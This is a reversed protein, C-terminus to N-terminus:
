GIKEQVLPDKLIDRGAAYADRVMSIAQEIAADSNGHIYAVPEGPSVKDGIRKLGSLGVGPDIVDTLLRRGGGLIQIALGLTRVDISTIYQDSSGSTRLLVPRKIKAHPLKKTNELCKTDGGQAAIIKCFMEFASGDQLRKELAKMVDTEKREPFALRIMEDALMLSLDKTSKPGAGKLIQVVEEVELSHGAYEGLPSQMTTILCRMSLGCEKGVDVLSHALEKAKELTDMFAGRGYKVDLVLGGIGEALKKSLISATILPVSEVTGTVDRLAYLKQDLSAIEPTQGIFVGGLDAVIKRAKEVPLRVTMGPIAELKDLTGGTHGLGRGSMMPVKVGELACLPLLILSTKDGVGGSSHKDVVIHQPYDWKLVNGSDRMVKTFHATEKRNMGKLLIAMLMAAAQYDAVKGKLYSNFFDEIELPDLVLGDRKKRIIEQPLSM